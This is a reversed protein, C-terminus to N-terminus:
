LTQKPSIKRGSWGMMDAWGLIDERAEVKEENNMDCEYIVQLMECFGHIGGVDDVLEIGDKQICVPRHKAAVESLNEASVDPTEGNMDKWMGTEDQKYANECRILVEWGDGYDYRYILQETVPYVSPNYKELFDREKKGSKFRTNGYEGIIEQMDLKSLQSDLHERIEALGRQDKGKVYLIEALPLRELLEYCFMDAFAHMVQDVTAKKLKVKHSAPQQEGGLIFDHVTIEDWRAFMRQVEIQNIVYHEGYGKYRYPGTYKKKMWSRISEGEKYDDDWYIDEYNETPFRFYVGAMKAWIRFQDETLEQFINEPLIFSHLHGNQWGFMRLIAYSLAHLTMDAPVLIDRSITKNMSGYEKLIRIEEEDVYKLNLELHLRLVDAGGTSSNRCEATKKDAVQELREAKTEGRTTNMKNEARKLVQMSAAKKMRNRYRDARVAEPSLEERGYIGREYPMYAQVNKVSMHLTEAIEGTTLGQALLNGIKISTDSEWLGETILIKRVKVTSIGTARATELISHNALYQRITEEVQKGSIDRM